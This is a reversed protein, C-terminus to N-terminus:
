LLAYLGYYNMCDMYDLIITLVTWLLAYHFDMIVDVVAEVVPRV